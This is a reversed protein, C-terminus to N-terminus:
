LSPVFQSPCFTALRVHPFVLSLFLFHFPVHLFFSVFSVPSHTGLRNVALTYYCSVFSFFFAFFTVCPFFFVFLFTSLYLSMSFLSTFCPFLYIFSLMLFFFLLFICFCRVSFLHIKNNVVSCRSCNSNLM